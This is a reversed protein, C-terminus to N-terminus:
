LVFKFIFFAVAGVFIIGAAWSTITDLIKAAKADKEDQLRDEESEKIDDTIDFEEEDGKEDLSFDYSGDAIKECRETANKIIENVTGIVQEDCTNGRTLSEGLSRCADTIQDPERSLTAKDILGECEECVCKPNGYASMAIVPADEKTIEAQCICCNKSLSM